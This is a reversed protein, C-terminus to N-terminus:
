SKKHKKCKHQEPQSIGENYSALEDPPLSQLLYEVEGSELLSEDIQKSNGLAKANTTPINALQGSAPVRKRKQRYMVSRDQAIATAVQMGDFDQLASLAQLSYGFNNSILGSIYSQNQPPIYALSAMADKVKHESLKYPAMPELLGHPRERLMLHYSNADQENWVNWQPDDVFEKTKMGYETFQFVHARFINHYSNMLPSLKEVWQLIHRQEEFNRRQNGLSCLDEISFFQGKMYEAVVYSNMQDQSNKTHGAILFLVEIEDFVRAFRVLWDCYALLANNHQTSHNDFVLVLKHHDTKLEKLLSHLCSIISNASESWHEPFLFYKSMGSHPNFWGSFHVNILESMLINMNNRHLKPIGKSRMHDGILM